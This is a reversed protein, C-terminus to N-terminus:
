KVTCVGCKGCSNMPCPRSTKQLMAKKYEKILFSKKVGQDIFDWPLIEDFSRERHVYFDSDFSCSKFANTWSGGNSNVLSLIGAVRRDGRSIMAQIYSRKPSESDIRINAEKRLGKKIHLIKNKLSPSGDMAVWQFPTFPKPIFPNISVTIHGMHKRKRSADLFVKKIQRCLTSIAEVDDMTEHPLGVMFYLKINPIGGEVITEAAALIQEESIGKNIIDRMRQSGADPAITATKVGSKKLAAVLERSVADARISSFSIKAGKEQATNCLGAIDPYDSVAAGIFGIKDTQTIGHDLCKALSSIERFRPPRYIYGASCFRCGHHCGRSVEMLFTRDFTTEESIISSCTNKLSINECYIRKITEPVDSLPSFSRITGNKNYSTEYFAPVYIGPVNEAIKQLIESKETGLEFYDFFTKVTDEAEGLIFCDIYQSVPEPNIFCAVGGAMVLPHPTGREIANLPLGARELISLINLFDNEFSVSFAVIDFDALRRSSEVTKVPDTNREPLFARECLISDIGNLIAYVTHFGLNSMGFEYINPYVLAIRIRGRWQKRVTGSESGSFDKPIREKRWPM